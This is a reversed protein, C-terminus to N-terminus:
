NTVSSQYVGYEKAAAMMARLNEPNGENMSAAGTLIYGGGDACTDILQRCGEKVQRPTGTCLVSVPLNGAICNNGGVMKKAKAMNMTEFYWIVSARPMEKIIELRPEYDGEAFLMPVLGEDILGMMVKKLTPWYFTAFQDNSMFGGTGKHLPIFVVPVGSQNAGTVGDRIALPVLREMAEELKAPRKYMDLMIGRTGRMMDGILDYPAQSFSGWIGPIGQNMAAMSVEIVAKMWQTGEEAVDLLTQLSARIEPDSFQNIYFMPIGVMPSMHTLKALGALAKNTRPLFTRLLYDTPDIILDDYEEPTMYEGEVYQYMAVDDGMGHGPWEHLRHGLLEMQRASLVLGAGPFVDFTFDELFKLWCRKLEDYDHMVKKLTSGSYFAPFFQAPTM